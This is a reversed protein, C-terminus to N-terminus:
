WELCTPSGTIVKKRPDLMIKFSREEVGERNVGLGSAELGSGLASIKVNPTISTEKKESTKAVRVWETKNPIHSAIEIAGVDGEPAKSKASVSASLPVVATEVVM